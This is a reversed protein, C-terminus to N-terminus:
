NGDDKIYINDENWIGKSICQQEIVIYDDEESDVEEDFELQTIGMMRFNEFFNERCNNCTIYRSAYIGIYDTYGARLSDSKCFPCCEPDELYAAVQSKNLQKGM